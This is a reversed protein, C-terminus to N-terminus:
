LVPLLRLLVCDRRLGAV